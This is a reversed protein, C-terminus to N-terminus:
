QFQGSETDFEKYTKVKEGKTLAIEIETKLAEKSKNNLYVFRKSGSQVGLAAMETNTHKVDFSKSKSAFVAFFLVSLILTHNTQGAIATCLLTIDNKEKM